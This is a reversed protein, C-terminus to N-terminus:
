PQARGKKRSRGYSWKAGVRPSSAAFSVSLATVGQSGQTFPAPVACGHSLSQLIVDVAIIVAFSVKCGRLRGSRPIWSGKCLPALLLPRHIPSLPLWSSRAFPRPVLPALLLPRHIPPCPSGLAVSPPNPVLPALLLPRHIPSLPLWPCRVTSQPCPSGLTVPPPDPSLPLWSCRTPSRPVLLALFLPRLPSSCGKTELICFHTGNQVPSM